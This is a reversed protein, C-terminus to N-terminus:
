SSVIWPPPDTNRWSHIHKKGTIYYNRYNTVPDDSIKYQDDMACPIQTMPVLPIKEPWVSLCEMLDSRYYSHYKGYRKTYEVMLSVFHNYLWDYNYGSERCWIASPHNVHTAQLLITDLYMDEMKFSTYKRNNKITEIKNGDLVRHATSLLQASELIMKVVHRDVLSQAAVVPCVDVYFINM